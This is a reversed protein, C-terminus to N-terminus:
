KAGKIYPVVHTEGGLYLRLWRAKERARERTEFLGRNVWNGNKAKTQVRWQKQTNSAM